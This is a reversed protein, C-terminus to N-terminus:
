DNSKNDNNENIEMMSYDLLPVLKSTLEKGINVIREIQSDDEIPKDFEITVAGINIDDDNTIGIIVSSKAKMAKLYQTSAPKIDSEKDVDHIVTYGNHCLEIIANFFMGLPLEAHVSMFSALIYKGSVWESICSAKFFPLGTNTKAGNHCAYVGVRMCDLEDQIKHCEDKLAYNLKMFIPVLNKETKVEQHHIETLESIKNLLLTNQDMINKNQSQFMELIGENQEKFMNATNQTHRRNSRFIFIIVVCITVILTAMLVTIFGYDNIAKAINIIDSSMSSADESTSSSAAEALLLLQLNYM